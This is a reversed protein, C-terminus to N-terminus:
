LTKNKRINDPIEEYDHSDDLPQYINEQKRTSADLPQYPNEWSDLTEYGANKAREAATLPKEYPSAEPKALHHRFTHGAYPGSTLKPSNGLLANQYRRSLSQLTSVSDQFQAYANRVNKGKLNKNSVKGKRNKELIHSTLADDLNQNLQKISKEFFKKVDKKTQVSVSSPAHRLKDELARRQENIQKKFSQNFKMSIATRSDAASLLSKRTVGPKTYRAPLPPGIEKGQMKKKLFTIKRGFYNKISSSQNVKFAIKGSKAHIRVDQSNSPVRAFSPPIHM